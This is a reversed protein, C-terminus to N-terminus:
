PHSEGYRSRSPNKQPFGRLMQVTKERVFANRAEVDAATKLLARKQDWASALDNQKKALYSILMDPMEDAYSRAFGSGSKSQAIGDLQLLAPSLLIAGSGIVFKRRNM